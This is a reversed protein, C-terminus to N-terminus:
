DFLLTDHLVYMYVYPCSFYQMKIIETIGDEHSIFNIYSTALKRQKRQQMSCSFSWVLLFVFAESELDSSCDTLLRALHPQFAIEKKLIYNFGLLLEVKM